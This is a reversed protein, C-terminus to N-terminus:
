PQYSSNELLSDIRAFAVHRIPEGFFRTAQYVFDSGVDTVAFQPRQTQAPSASLSNLSLYEMVYEACAQASDVIEIQPPLVKQLTETLLPYHTCGLLILDTPHAILDSLYHEIASQAVESDTLGEEVIPVFLPTAISQVIIEPNQAHIARRYADSQITAKTGIITVSKPARRLCAKVGADLVGIVPTNGALKQLSDMAVSSVTNCAVVVLKVGKQLLFQTDEKGYRMITEVSKDGYPVRATDGLYSLSENPLARHLARAVTLGGLGSDFIGIPRNDYQAIPDNSSTM